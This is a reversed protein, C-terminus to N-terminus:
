RWIRLKNLAKRYKSANQEHQRYSNAFEHYGSLDDKACFYFYRHEEYDLVANISAISPVCIPGPPIGKHKYTNFPSDIKKHINLVRKISYDNLAFILTPDAQLYWGRKIRNIYVGAIKKKEDNKQTEKEVISALIIVETVSMGLSDAKQKRKSNWFQDYERKMRKIFDDTKITWFIQYTNPIFISTATYKNLGLSALFTSDNLRNIISASDTELQTSIRQALQEKTRINNFILKIPTQNGFRLLNILTLNNMGKKLLYHGAKITSPYSKQNALWEFNKRHIILGQKYLITKVQEFDSGSPIYISATEKNETWVNTKYFIQYLLFIGVLIPVVTLTILYIILRQRKSKKKRGSYKSHYYAM